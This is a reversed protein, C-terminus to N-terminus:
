IGMSMLGRNELDRSRSQPKGMLMLRMENGCLPYATIAAFFRKRVEAMQRHPLFGCLCYVGDVETIM